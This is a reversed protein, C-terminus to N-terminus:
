RKEKGLNKRDEEDQPIPKSLNNTKCKIKKEADVFETVVQNEPFFGGDDSFNKKIENKEKKNM